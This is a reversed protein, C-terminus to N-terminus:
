SAAGGAKLILTADEAPDATDADLIFPATGNFVFSTFAEEAGLAAPEGELVYLLEQGVVLVLEVSVGFYVGRHTEQPTSAYRYISDVPVVTADGWLAAPITFQGHTGSNDQYHSRILLMQTLTLNAYSLTLRHGNTQLSHRFRVPGGTLTTEESVNLGGLDYSISDPQLPPFSSM